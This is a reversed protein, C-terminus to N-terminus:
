RAEHLVWQMKKLERRMALYAILAVITGIAALACHPAVAQWGPVRGIVWLVVVDVLLAGSLLLASWAWSFRVWNPTGLQEPAGAMRGAFLIALLWLLILWPAALAALAVLFDSVQSSAQPHTLLTRYYEIL